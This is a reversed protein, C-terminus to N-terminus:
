TTHMSPQSRVPAHHDWDDAEIEEMPSADNLARQYLERTAEHRPDGLRFQTQALAGYYLVVDFYPDEIATIDTDESLPAPSRWTRVRLVNGAQATGAVPDVYLQLGERAYRSPGSGTTAQREDFERISLPHLRRRRIAPTPTSTAIYFVDRIARVRHGVTAFDIPYIRQDQVLTIDFEAKFEEFPHVRPLTMHDYIYNIDQTLLADGMSADNRLEMSDTIQARFDALTQIGM